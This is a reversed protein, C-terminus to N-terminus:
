MRRWRRPSPPVCGYFVASFSWHATAGHVWCLLDALPADPPWLLVLVLLPPCRCGALKATDQHHGQGNASVPHVAGGKTTGAHRKGHHCTTARRGHRGVCDGRHGIPSARQRRLLIGRWGRVGGCESRVHVAAQTCRAGRRGGAGSRPAESGAQQLRCLQQLGLWGELGCQRLLHAQPWGHRGTCRAAPLATLPVHGAQRACMPIPHRRHHSHWVAQTHTLKHGGRGGGGNKM